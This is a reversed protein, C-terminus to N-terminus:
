PLDIGAAKAAALFESAPHRNELWRVQLDPWRSRYAATEDRVPDVLEAMDQTSGFDIGVSNNELGGEAGWWPEGGDENEHCFVDVDYFHAM